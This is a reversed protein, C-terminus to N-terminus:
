SCREMIETSAEYIWFDSDSDDLCILDMIETSTETFESILISSM